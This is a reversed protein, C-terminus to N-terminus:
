VSKWVMRMPPRCFLAESTMTAIWYENSFDFDRVIRPEYQYNIVGIRFSTSWSKDDMGESWHVCTLVDSFETGQGAKTSRDLGFICEKSQEMTVKNWFWDFATNPECLAAIEMKGDKDISMGPSPYVGDEAIMSSVYEHFKAVLDM